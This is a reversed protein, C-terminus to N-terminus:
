GCSHSGKLQFGPEAVSNMVTVKIEFACYTSQATAAPVVAPLLGAVALAPARIVPM